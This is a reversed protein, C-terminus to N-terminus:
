VLFEWVKILRAHAEDRRATTVRGTWRCLGAKCAKLPLSGWSNLSNPSKHKSQEHYLRFQEFTFENVANTKFNSNLWHTLIVIVKENWEAGTKKDALLQGNVKNLVTISPRYLENPGFLATQNSLM